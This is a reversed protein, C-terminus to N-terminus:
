ILEQQGPVICDVEKIEGTYIYLTITTRIATVSLTIFCYFKELRLQMEESIIEKHWIILM